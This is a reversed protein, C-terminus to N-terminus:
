LTTHKMATATELRTGLRALFLEGFIDGATHIALLCEKGESSLMLLKIQGSEIFYVMDASDGCVYVPQHSAVRITRLNVQRELSQCLLPRFDNTKLFRRFMGCEM